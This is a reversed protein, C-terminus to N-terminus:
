RQQPVLYPATPAQGPVQGPVQPAPQPPASPATPQEVPPAPQATQPPQPQGAAAQPNVPAPPAGAAPPVATEPPPNTGPAGAMRQAAAQEALGQNVVAARPSIPPQLPQSPSTPRQAPQSQVPSRTAANAATQGKAEEPLEVRKSVGGDSLLIYQRHVEKVTVGPAVEADMRVAQAPKGDASLIAVSEKANGSVVVGKLQYNSAVAVSAARGGFLGAAAEIPPPPRVSPPPAAVPRMPPKFLQMAWYTVSACLAIFLVFSAVVPWRKM